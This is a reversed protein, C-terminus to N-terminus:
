NGFSELFEDEDVSEPIESSHPDGKAADSRSLEELDRNNEEAEKERQIDIDKPNDISM